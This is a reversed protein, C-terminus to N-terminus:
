FPIWEDMCKQSCCPANWTFWMRKGCVDCPHGKFFRVCRYLRWWLSQLWALKGQQVFDPDYLACGCKPCAGNNDCWCGWLNCSIRM